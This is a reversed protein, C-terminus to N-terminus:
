QKNITVKFSMIEIANRRVAHIVVVATCEFKINEYNKRIESIFFEDGRANWPDQQFFDVILVYSKWVFLYVGVGDDDYM